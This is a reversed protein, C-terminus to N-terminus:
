RGLVVVDGKRVWGTRRSTDRAQLWTQPQSGVTLTKEDLVTLETGDRFQHLVKSEELPGSRVVTEPAVVVAERVTAQGYAAASLSAALLLALVGCTATYGRLAKRMAPRAERLALLAFWVWLAASALVTWENLTLARLWRRGWPQPFTDSGTVQQRVFQLNFRVNPDRPTLREARRYAAIARGEEGAKFWANGLNYYLTASGNGSRIIEQYAAAAEPYKGQEYLQNAQDFRLPLPAAAWGAGVSALLLVLAATM